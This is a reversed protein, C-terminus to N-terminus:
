CQFYIALFQNYGVMVM